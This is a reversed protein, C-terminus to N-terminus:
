AGLHLVRLTEGGASSVCFVDDTGLLELTVSGGAALKLGYNAVTVGVGGLFVVTAAENTVIARRSVEEYNSGGTDPTPTIISIPAVGVTVTSHKTM